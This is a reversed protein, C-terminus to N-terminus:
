QQKCEADQPPGIGATPAVEMGPHLVRDHVRTTAGRPQSSWKSARAPGGCWSGQSGVSDELTDQAAGGPRFKFGGAAQGDVEGFVKCETSEEASVAEATAEASVLEEGIRPVISRVAESVAMEDVDILLAGGAVAGPARPGKLPPSARRSPSPRPARPIVLDNVGTEVLVAYAQSEANDVFKSDAAAPFEVVARRPVAAGLSGDVVGPVIRHFLVAADACGDDGRGVKAGRFAAAGDLGSAAGAPAASLADAGSRVALRWGADLGESFALAQSEVGGDSLFWYGPAPPMPAFDVQEEVTSDHAEQGDEFFILLPPSPIYTKPCGM